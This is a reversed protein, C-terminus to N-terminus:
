GLAQSNRKMDSQSTCAGSEGGKRKHIVQLRTLLFFSFEVPPSLLIFGSFADICFGMRVQHAALTVESDLVKGNIRDVM